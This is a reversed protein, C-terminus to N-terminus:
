RNGTPTVPVFIGGGPNSGSFGPAGAFGPLVYGTGFAPLSSGDSGGGGILSGLASSCGPAILIAEEVLSRAQGPAAELASRTLDVFDTCNDQMEQNQKKKKRSLLAVRLLPVAKDTNKRVASRLATALVPTPASAITVGAPLEAALLEGSSAAAVGVAERVGGATLAVALALALGFPRLLSAKM